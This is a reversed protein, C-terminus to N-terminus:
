IILLLRCSHATCSVDATAVAPHPPLLRPLQIAAGRVRQGQWGHRWRLLLLLVLLLSTGHSFPALAVALPARESGDVLLCCVLRLPLVQVRRLLVHGPASFGQSGELRRPRRRLLVLLVLLRRPHRDGCWSGRVGVM